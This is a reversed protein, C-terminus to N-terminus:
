LMFALGSLNHHLFNLWNDEEKICSWSSFALPWIHGISGKPRCLDSLCCNSQLAYIVFRLLMHSWHDSWSFRMKLELFKKVLISCPFDGTSTHLFIMHIKKWVEVLKHLSTCQKSVSLLFLFDTSYQFCFVISVSNSVIFKKLLFMILMCIISLGIDPLNILYNLYIVGTKM